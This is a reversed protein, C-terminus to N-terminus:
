LDMELSRLTGTDVTCLIMLLNVAWPVTALRGPHPCFLLIFSCNCRLMTRITSLSGQNVELCIWASRCVCPEVTDARVIRWWRFSFLSGPPCWQQCLPMFFCSQLKVSSIHCFWLGDPLIYQPCILCFYLKKTFSMMASKVYFSILGEFYLVCDRCDFMTSTWLPKPTAKSSRASSAKVTHITDHFRIILAAAGGSTM